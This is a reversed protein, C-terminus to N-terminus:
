CKAASMHATIAPPGRKGWAANAPGMAPAANRAAFLMQMLRPASRPELPM